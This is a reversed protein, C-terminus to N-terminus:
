KIASLQRIKRAKLCKRVYVGGGRKSTPVNHKLNTCELTKLLKNVFNYIKVYKKEHRTFLPVKLM